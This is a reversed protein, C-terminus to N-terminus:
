SPATPKVFASKRKILFWIIPGWILLTFLPYFVLVITIISADNVEMRRAMEALMTRTEPSFTEAFRYLAVMCAFGIAARRAFERLHWLGLGLSILLLSLSGVQFLTVWERQTDSIHVVEAYYPYRIFSYIGWGILFTSIVKISLPRPSPPKTM